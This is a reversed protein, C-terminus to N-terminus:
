AGRKGRFREINAHELIEHNWGMEKCCRTIQRQARQWEARFLERKQTMRRPEAPLDPNPQPEAVSHERATRGTKGHDGLGDNRSM